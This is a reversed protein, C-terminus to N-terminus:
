ICQNALLCPIAAHIPLHLYNWQVKVKHFHGSKCWNFESMKSLSNDFFPGHDYTDSLISCEMKLVRAVNSM